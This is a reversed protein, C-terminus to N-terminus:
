DRLSSAFGPAEDGMEEVYPTPALIAMSENNEMRIRHAYMGLSAAAASRDKAVTSVIFARRAKGMAAYWERREQRRVEAKREDDLEAGITVRAPYFGEVAGMIIVTDFELGCSMELLGIRVADRDSSFRAELRGRARALLEAADEAGSVPAVLEMFSHPPEEGRVPACDNLLAFGQKRSSRAVFEKGARFREVLVSAGSFLEGETAAVIEARELAELVGIGADLAYKELHFWHNSNTLYDGFGCWSRWAIVDSPDAALNLRTYAQLDLSKDEQRPDGRLAHRSTVKDVKIGNAELVRALATGWVGNPVAVFLDRGHVPHTESALRHKVYRAIGLFEDNPTPWKVFQIECPGDTGQGAAEEAALGGVDVLSDGLSVLRDPCRRSGTLRVIAVKRGEGLRGLGERCPYPEATSVQENECGTVVLSKEALLEVLQQSARNLNQFDDVLVYPRRFPAAEPGHDRVFKCAVNSLEQPLMAGRLRLNETLTAYVDAEESDQIFTDKEDGLESLERYFFKLMERLRKPKQGCVKMDEMLIREEFDALLRPFCGTMAQVSPEALLTAAYAQLTTAGVEPAGAEVLLVGMRDAASPTSCLLLIDQAPVGQARLFAARRALGTTKGTGAGGIVKILPTDSELACYWETEDFTTGM